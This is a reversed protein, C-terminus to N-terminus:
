QKSPLVSSKGGNVQPGPCFNSTDNPNNYDYDDIEECHETGARQGQAM